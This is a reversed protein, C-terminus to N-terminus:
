GAQIAREFEYGYKTIRQYLREYPIHVIDAWEAITHTEGNFTIYRNTARNNAQKKLSVWRCNDPSYDGDNNIRDLTCEGRQMDYRYGNALSWEMFATYDDRWEDCMKIGRGGYRSFKPEYDKYCRRKIASWVNYLRSDTDGHKGITEQVRQKQLCGCSLTKGGKLNDASIDKIRGCECQCTWMVRHKGAPSVRDEARKIVTLRGYKQNTIDVFTGM